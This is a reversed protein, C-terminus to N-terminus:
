GSPRYVPLKVSIGSKEAPEFRFQKDRHTRAVVLPNTTSILNRHVLSKVVQDSLFARTLYIGLVELLAAARRRTQVSM